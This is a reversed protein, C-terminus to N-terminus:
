VEISLKLEFFQYVSTKIYIWSPIGDINTSTILKQKPDAKSRVRTTKIHTHNNNQTSCTKRQTVQNPNPTLQLHTTTRPSIDRCFIAELLLHHHDVVISKASLAKVQVFLSLPLDFLSLSHCFFLWRNLITWIQKHCYSDQIKILKTASVQMWDYTDFNFCM